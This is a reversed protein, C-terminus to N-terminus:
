EDGGPHTHALLIVNNSIVTIYIQLMKITLKPLNAAFVSYFSCNEGTHVCFVNTNSMITNSLIKSISFVNDCISRSFAIFFDTLNWSQCQISSFAKFRETVNIKPTICQKDKEIPQDIKRKAKTSTTKNPYINCWKCKRFYYRRLKNRANRETHPTLCDFVTGIWKTSHMM